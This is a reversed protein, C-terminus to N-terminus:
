VGCSPPLCIAVDWGSPSPAFEITRRARNRLCGAEVSRWAANGDSGYRELADTSAGDARRRREVFRERERRRGAREDFEVTQEGSPRAAAGELVAYHVLDASEPNASRLFGGASRVLDSVRMDSALPYRGPRAVEGRVYVSPPNVKEPQRHVLIRDRPEMLINNLPDGALAERLSISFVKTTGDPLARFLQASELWSDPTIGGAQYVADRVHEQGSVRYHGAARVEGMVAIEPAAELDYRGFIRVTDLAELKPANEPHDLATALNFSEVVPRNDPQTIRVIEAYREAPEPLLEKYSSVLDTVKMGDHFSYKGPRLVHGELYVSATNYPAIPFIHIEDGDQVGFKEFAARLSDKDSTEGVDLSLM